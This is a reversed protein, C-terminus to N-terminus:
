RSSASVSKEIAAYDYDPNDAANSVHIHLCKWRGDEKAFVETSRSRWEKSQGEIVFGTTRSATVVAMKGDGILRVDFSRWPSSTTLRQRARDWLKLWDSLGRLIYGASHFFVCSPHTSWIQKLAEADLRNSSARLYALHMDFIEAADQDTGTFLDRNIAGPDNESPGAPAPSNSTMSDGPDARPARELPQL